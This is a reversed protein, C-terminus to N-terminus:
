KSRNKNGLYILYKRSGTDRSGRSEAEKITWGLGRIYKKAFNLTPAYVTITNGEKLEGVIRPYTM